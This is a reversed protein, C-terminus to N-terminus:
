LFHIKFMSTIKRRCAICHTVSSWCELCTVAHNCPYFSVKVERVLCILCTPNSPPPLVVSLESSQCSLPRSPTTTTPPKLAQDSNSPSPLAPAQNSSSNRSDGSRYSSSSAWKAVFDEGKVLNLFFCGTQYKAHEVWPCDDYNWEQLGLDCYFCRVRDGNGSNFDFLIFNNNLFSECGIDTLFILFIQDGLYFFGAEVLKEPSIAGNKPWGKFTKIRSDPSAYNEYIPGNFIKARIYEEVTGDRRTVQIFGHERDQHTVKPWKRDENARPHPVQQGTGCVDFYIDSNSTM